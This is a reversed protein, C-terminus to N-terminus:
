RAGPRQQADCWIETWKFLYVSYYLAFCAMCGRGYVSHTRLADTPTEDDRHVEEEGVDDEDLNSPHFPLFYVALGILIFEVKELIGHFNDVTHFRIRFRLAVLWAMVFNLFLSCMSLVGVALSQEPLLHFGMTGGIKYAAAVYNLDFFLDGWETDHLLKEPEHHDRIQIPPHYWFFSSMDQNQAVAPGELSSTSSMDLTASSTRHVTGDDYGSPSYPVEM